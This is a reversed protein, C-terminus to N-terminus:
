DSDKESDSEDESDSDDDGKRVLTESVSKLIPVSDALRDRWKAETQLLADAADAKMSLMTLFCKLKAKTNSRKLKSNEKRLKKSEQRAETLQSKLTAIKAQYNGFMQIVSCSLM